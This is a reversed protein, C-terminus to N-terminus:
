WRQPPMEDIAQPSPRRQLMAVLFASPINPKRQFIDLDVCSVCSGPRCPVLRSCKGAVIRSKKNEGGDAFVKLATVMIHEVRLVHVRKATKRFINLITFSM